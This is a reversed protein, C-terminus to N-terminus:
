MHDTYDPNSKEKFNGTWTYKKYKHNNDLTSKYLGVWSNESVYKWETFSKRIYLRACAYGGKTYLQLSADFGTIITPLVGNAENFKPGSWVRTYYNTEYFFSDASRLFRLNIQLGPNLPSSTDITGYSRGHLPFVELETEEQYLGINMKMKLVNEPIGSWTIRAYGKSTSKVQLKINNHEQCQPSADPSCPRRKPIICSLTESFRLVRDPNYGARIMFRVLGPIDPYARQLDSINQEYDLIKCLDYGSLNNCDICTDDTIIGQIERLLSPLVRYTHDPDYGSGRSRDEYHQTIYVEEITDQDDSMRIVVRDMNRMPGEANYYDQTVYGPLQNANRLSLSGLSYYASSMKSIDPIRTIWHSIRNRYRHFGYDGRSPNFNRPWTINNQDIEVSNAFWYLTQLGHRPFKQGFTTKKKLDNITKLKKFIKLEETDESSSTTELDHTTHVQKVIAKSFTAATICTLGLCLCFCYLLVKREM